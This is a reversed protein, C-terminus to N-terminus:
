KILNQSKRCVHRKRLGFLLCSIRQMSVTRKLGRTIYAVTLLVVHWTGMNLQKVVHPFDMITVGDLKVFQEIEANSITITIKPLFKSIVLWIEM